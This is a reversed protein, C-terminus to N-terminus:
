ATAVNVLNQIQAESTIQLIPSVDDKRVFVKGFATWSYKYNKSKTLDRALFYLRAARATLQESVYIPTDSQSKIGVHRLCLKNSKNSKNYTKCAKLLDTKMWSTTMEVIVTKNDKKTKIRFIDKVDKKTINHSKVSDSLNTVINILDDMTENPKSPVNKIEICTKRNSRQLDEIKDELLVIYERDKKRLNDSNILKAQLDKNQEALFSVTNEINQMSQRIEKLSPGLNKTDQEQKSLFTTMMASIENKFKDFDSMSLDNSRKRKHGAVCNTPTAQTLTLDFSPDSISRSTESLQEM